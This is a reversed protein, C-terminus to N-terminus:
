SKIKLPINTFKVKDDSLYHRYIEVIAFIGYFFVGFYFLDFSSDLLQHTLAGIISLASCVVFTDKPKYLVKVWRVILFSLIILGIVGLTAAIQLIFNHFHVNQRGDLHYYILYKSSKLGNGFIPKDLFTKIAVKYLPSRNPDDFIEKSTFLTKFTSILKNFLPKQFLWLLFTGLAIGMGLIGGYKVLLRKRVYLVTFIGLSIAVGLFAGRSMTLVLGFINVIDLMFYGLYYKNKNLYKYLALPLLLVFVIAILNSYGWGLNILQKRNITAQFGHLYYIYFLELTLTLMIYTAVKSITLLDDKNIRFGANTLLYYILYGELMAVLGHFGDAKVPTWAISIFSYGLLIVLPLLLKGVVIQKKKINNIVVLVFVIITLCYDIKFSGTDSQMSMVSFLIVVFFHSFPKKQYILYAFILLYIILGYVFLIDKLLWILLTIGLLALLQLDLKYKTM